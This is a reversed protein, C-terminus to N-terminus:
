DRLVASRPRGNISQVRKRKYAEFDQLAAVDSDVNCEYYYTTPDGEVRIVWVREKGAPPPLKSPDLVVEGPQPPPAPRTPRLQGDYM